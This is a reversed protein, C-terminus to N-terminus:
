NIKYIIIYGAGGATENSGAGSAGGGRVSNRNNGGNNGNVGDAASGPSFAPNNTTISGGPPSSPPISSSPKLVPAAAGQGNANNTNHFDANSIYAAAGGAGSSSTANSHAGKGIEPGTYNTFPTYGVAGAGQFSFLSNPLEVSAAAGPAGGGRGGGAGGPGTVAASKEPVSSTDTQKFYGSAGGGGGSGVSGGAGGGGGPTMFSGGSGGGGGGACLLYGTGSYIFSGSGGGGGGSGSLSGYIYGTNYYYETSSMEPIYGNVSQFNILHDRLIESVPVPSSAGGSGTFVTFSTETDVTLIESVSGGDGGKSAGTRTVANRAYPFGQQNFDPTSIVTGYGGGGGAGKLKILYIGPQLTISSPAPDGSGSLTYRQQGYTFGDSTLFTNFRPWNNEIYEKFLFHSGNDVLYLMKWLARKSGNYWGNKSSSYFPTASSFEYLVEAGLRYAYLYLICTSSPLSSNVSTDSTVRHIVGDIDFYSDKKIRPAATDSPNVLSANFSGFSSVLDFEASGRSFELMLEDTYSYSISSLADINITFTVIFSGTDQFHDGSSSFLPILATVFSAEQSIIIENINRCSAVSGAINYVSINSFHRKAVNKPLSSITLYPVANVPINGADIYGNGGIFYVQVRDNHEVLIRTVADINIDFSVFYSGTEIFKNQSNNQYVLPIAATSKNENLTINIRSYDPCRAVTGAQNYVAVNSINFVSLNPPLNTIIFFTIEDAPPDPLDNIDLFGNGNEFPIYVSDSAEVTYHIVADIFLDFSVIFSGTGTFVSNDLFSLPIKVSSNGGSAFAEVLSYDACKAVQGNKNHIFVKSVFKASFHPPLNYLTLYRLVAASVGHDASGPDPLERIDFAGRGDTFPILIKDATTAIFSTVADIHVTFSAFFSGNEIFEANDNYVLPLYLTNSDKETFVKIAANRDLRAISSASNSIQVSFVNAAQSHVPMHILKLYRGTKELEEREYENIFESVSEAGSVPLALIDLEGRGDIFLVLIKEAATVIYSTVADIHVTFAAFFYGYETFESNDNYVLPLYLTNSGGENFIRVLANRDLRAISSASNSIQVSVINAAQTNTPMNVLKLYRGSRELEDREVENIIESANESGAVPLTRIDLVGRGGTFHILIKDAATVIYSTVADIHITFAIFFSGNETFESSDNYVLPLYLTNSDNEIFIKIFDDRNLRAISSASNYIQVSVINAAQTNLPMHTLKLYRGTKELEEKEDEGIIESPSGSGSATILLIDFVGRGDTFAVLIKDSSSVVYSTVADIQINFAVYFSGNEVFETNNNYILPLYVTVTNSDEDAFTKIFDKGDLKAISSVSNSIQVSMVNASQTNPPMNILKLYRGSKELEEKEKETIVRSDNEDDTRDQIYVMDCAASLLIFTFIIISYLVTKIIKM